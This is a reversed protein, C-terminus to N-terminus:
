SQGGITTAGDDDIHIDLADLVAYVTRINIKDSGPRRKFCDLMIRQAIAPGCFARHIQILDAADISFHRRWARDPTPETTKSTV